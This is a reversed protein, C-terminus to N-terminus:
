SARKHPRGAKRMALDRSTSREIAEIFQEGGAPRGTRIGRLLRTQISPEDNGKLYEAWDEILGM